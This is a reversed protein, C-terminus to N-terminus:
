VATAPAGSDAPPCVSVSYLLYAPAPFSREVEMVAQQCAEAALDLNGPVIGPPAAAAAAAAPHARSFVPLLVM